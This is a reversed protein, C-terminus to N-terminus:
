QGFPSDQASAAPWEARQTRAVSPRRTLGWWPTVDELQRRYNLGYPITYYPFTKEESLRPHPPPPRALAFPRTAPVEEGTLCRRGRSVLVRSGAPGYM